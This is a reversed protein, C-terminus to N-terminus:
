HCIITVAVAYDTLLEIVPSVASREVSCSEEDAVIKEYRVQQAVYEDRLPRQQEECEELFFRRM